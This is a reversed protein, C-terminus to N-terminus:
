GREIESLHLIANGHLRLVHRKYFNMRIAVQEWTLPKNDEVTLYYWRMVEREDSNDLQRILQEADIHKQKLSFISQELTKQMDVIKSVNKSIMDDPSTQVKDKDYRIGQPLLMMEESKIMEALHAIEKQEKRIERFMNKVDNTKM